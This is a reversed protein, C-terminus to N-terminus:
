MSLSCNPFYACCTSQTIYQVLRLVTDQRHEHVEHYPFNEIPDLMYLHTGDLSISEVPTDLVNDDENDLATVLEIPPSGSSLSSSRSSRSDAKMVVTEAQAQTMHQSDISGGNLTTTQLSPSPSPPNDAQTTRRLNITVKSSPPEQVNADSMTQNEPTQPTAPRNDISMANDSSAEDVNPNDTSAEMDHRLPDSGDVSRSPSGSLSTRRRKRSAVESDDFPNPRTSVEPSATRRSSDVLANTTFDM